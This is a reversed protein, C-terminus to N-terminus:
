FNYNSFNKESKCCSKNSDALSNKIDEIKNNLLVDIKNELENIQLESQAKENIKIKIGNIKNEIENIQPNSHALINIKNKIGDIKDEIEDANILNETSGLLKHAYM